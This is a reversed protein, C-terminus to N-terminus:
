QRLGNLARSFDVFVQKTITTHVAFDIIKFVGRFEEELLVEKFLHSVIPPHNRFEICGYDNLIVADHGEHAAIRLIARIKEKTGKVYKGRSGPSSHEKSHHCMNYPSSSIVAIEVPRALYHFNGEQNERIIDVHPSYIGGFTPIHYQHGHLQKRLTHNRHPFLSLFLDTVRFMAAEETEKGYFVSDGPHNQRAENLAVVNFGRNAYSRAAGLAERRSVLIQTAYANQGTQLRHPHKFIRTGHQMQKITEDPITVRNGDVNYGHLSSKETQHFIAKLYRRERKAVRHNHISPYPSTEKKILTQAQTFQPTTSQPPLRATGDTCLVLAPCTAVLLSFLRLTMSFIRETFVSMSCWYDPVFTKV